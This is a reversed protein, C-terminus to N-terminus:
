LKMSEMKEEIEMNVVADEYFSNRLNTLLKGLRNEGFGTPGHGWYPDKSTNVLPRLGTKMLNQKIEPQQELKFLLINTM